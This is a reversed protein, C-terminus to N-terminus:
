ESPAAERITATQALLLERVHRLAAPDPDRDQLELITQLVMRRSEEPLWVTARVVENRSDATLRQSQEVEFLSHWINEIALFRREYVLLDLQHDHAATEAAATHALSQRASVLSLVASVLGIGGAILAPGIVLWVSTEAALMPSPYTGFSSHDLINMAIRCHQLSGPCTERRRAAQRTECVDRRSEAAWGAETGVLQGM